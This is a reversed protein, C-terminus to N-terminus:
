DGLLSIKKFSFPIREQELRQKHLSEYLLKEEQTLHQLQKTQAKPDEVVYEKYREFTEADMCFSEIAPFYGRIQSLIAFGDSDIDGWYYLKKQQLWAVNKLIGVKYGSGFIVISKKTDKFALTTIQNEVIFVRECAIDLREFEEITLTIDSLGAIYLDADLIRFRVQPLPYKLSYKKEFAYERLSSLPETQTLCSLLIDIIKKYKEIYKTDIGELTIERIYHNKQKHALFYEVVLFLKDWESAYELVFFPKKIFLEKLPPYKAVIQTYLKIFEAYEQEKHILRLYEDLCAVRISVPLTQKGMTKFDYQAYVLPLKTEQLLQLEKSFLRYNTQIDKQQIKKLTIEFPFLAENEIFARFIEGRAYPRQLKKYLQERDYFPM